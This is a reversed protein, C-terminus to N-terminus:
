HVSMLILPFSIWLFMFCAQNDKVTLYNGKEGEKHAIQMFFGNVLAKRVNVFLKKPDGLSVLDIELREMIRQLQGRVNEAQQLARLSLYNTWAWNRDHKDKLFHDSTTSIRIHYFRRVRCLNTTYM